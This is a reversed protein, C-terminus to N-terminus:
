LVGKVPLSEQVNALVVKEVGMERTLRALRQAFERERSTFLGNILLRFVAGEPVNKQYGQPHLIVRAMAEVGLADGFSVGAIGALHEWRHFNDGTLPLGPAGAGVVGVVMQSKRPIVPEHTAPAKFPKRAAGDAEVLIYCDPALLSIEDIWEPPIGKLKGEQLARGAILPLGGIVPLLQATKERLESWTPALFRKKYCRFEEEGMRTTTTVLCKQGLATLELSLRKIASTKGGGGVFSIIGPKNVGLSELLM